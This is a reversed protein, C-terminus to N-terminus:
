KRLVTRHPRRVTVKNKGTNKSLYLAEDARRIIDNVTKDMECFTTVGFSATVNAIELKELDQCLTKVQSYVDEPDSHGFFILFEEGGYRAVWSNRDIRCNIYTAVEKLVLDGFTHGYTDNIQKFNDIDVLAISFLSQHKLHVAFQKELTIDIYRRNYLDTLSDTSAIEILEQTYLVNQLVAAITRFIQYDLASRIYIKPLIRKNELLIAGLAKDKYMLPTFFSFNIHRDIATKYHLGEGRKAMSTVPSFDSKNLLSNCHNELSPLFCPDVNSSMVNLGKDSEYYLITIYSVKFFQELVKLISQSPNSLSQNNSTNELLEPLLLSNLKTLNARGFRYQFINHIASTVPLLDVIALGM